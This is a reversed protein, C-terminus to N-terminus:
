SDSSLSNVFERLDSQSDFTGTRAGMMAWRSGAATTAILIIGLEVLTVMALDFVSYGFVADIQHASVGRLAALGVLIVGANAAAVTRRPLKRWRLFLLVVVAVAAVAVVGAAVYQALYRQEYWGADWAISRISRAVRTPM